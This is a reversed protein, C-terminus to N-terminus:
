KNEEIIQHLEPPLPKVPQRTLVMDGNPGLRQVHNFKSFEDSKTPYDDRFQAGRSEKREIAARTTAEAVTLLNQLDICTHWGPNYERHGYAAANKARAKLKQLNELARLMEDELRVIGVLAQMSEAIASEALGGMEAIMARLQDLDQDFAKVTHGTTAM